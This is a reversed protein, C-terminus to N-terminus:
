CVITLNIKKCDPGVQELESIQNVLSKMKDEEDNAKKQLSEQLIQQNQNSSAKLEELQLTLIKVEETLKEKDEKIHKM